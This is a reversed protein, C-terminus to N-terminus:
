GYSIVIFLMPEGGFFPISGIWSSTSIIDCLILLHVVVAIEM